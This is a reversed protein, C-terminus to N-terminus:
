VYLTMLPHLLLAAEGGSSAIHHEASLNVVDHTHFSQQAFSEYM